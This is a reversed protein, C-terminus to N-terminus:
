DGPSTPLETSGHNDREQIIQYHWDATPLAVQHSRPSTIIIVLLSIWALGALALGIYFSMPRFIFQVEHAGEQLRVGRLIRDVTEIAAPWGDVTVEWGPYAVESLTLMGPGEAWLVVQNAGTSVQVDARITKAPGMDESYVWARPLSALNQYIHTSGFQAVLVLYRDQLPFESVVYRVNLLGLLEPNPSYDKNDTAPNGGAFPPLTVSYGSGPVGTAAQMFDAYAALQLPDVGDALEFGYEAALNQSISYSPSYVRFNGPSGQASLFEAVEQGQSLVEDAPRFDLSLINVGILDILSVISLLVVLMNARVTRRIALWLLGGGIVFFIAGWAFRLRFLAQDSVLWMGVAFLGISIIVTFFALNEWSRAKQSSLGHIYFNSVAILSNLALAGLVAFGFGSLLLARPPVRLMNMGPLRAVLDLFPISDGLAYLTTIAVLGLWFVAQRRVPPRILIYFVLVLIVAGPYLLWEATGGIDPFVMGLLRAPPLSLVLNEHAAMQSRTTLRTYQALPLLLPAAVLGAMILNSMRSALWLLWKRPGVARRLFERTSYAVWLVGAYAAWRVDALALMGMVAGPLLWGARGAAGAQKEVYLLWPTWTIAYVLTLHGAGIHGYIKPLSAFVLAGYLAATEGLGEQRLWLYMGLGGGVLHLVLVLNFGIPLPFLLALWGPIYALGSLPNAVFPYGSLITPSWLPIVGQERFVKQLFIGNPYHSVLMDSYQAGPQFAFQDLHLLLISVPLFLLAIRM